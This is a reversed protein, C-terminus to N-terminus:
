AAGAGCLHRALFTAVAQLESERVIPLPHGAQRAVHVTARPFVARAPADYKAALRSGDAWLFLAPNALPSKGNGKGIEIYAVKYRRRWEGAQMRMWGFLSGVIFKQWLQLVFPKGEHDGGNLCLFHEYFAIYYRAMEDDFRLGRAAGHEFDRLHRACADRVHPGAVILGRCVREAYLTVPDHVEAQDDALLDGRQEDDAAPAFVDM